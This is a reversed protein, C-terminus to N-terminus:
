CPSKWQSSQQETDPDYGYVWTEGGTIINSIFNPDDRAQQTGQLYFRSPGEPRQEATKACIKCFHMENELQSGFHM